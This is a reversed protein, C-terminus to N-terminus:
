EKAVGKAPRGKADSRRAAPAARPSSAPAMRPASRGVGDQARIGRDAARSTRAASNSSRYRDSLTPLSPRRKVESYRWVRRGDPAEVREWTRNREIIPVGDHTMTGASEPRVRLVLTQGSLDDSGYGNGIRPVPADGLTMTTRGEAAAEYSAKWAAEVQGQTAGKPRRVGDSIMYSWNGLFDYPTLGFRGVCGEMERDYAKWGRALEGLEGGVATQNLYGRMMWTYPNYFCPGNEASFAKGDQETASSPAPPLDFEQALLHGTPTAMVITALALVASRSKM